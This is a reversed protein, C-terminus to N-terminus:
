GSPIRIERSSVWRRVVRVVVETELDLEWPWSMSLERAMSPERRPSFGRRVSKWALLGEYLMREVSEAERPRWVAEVNIDRRVVM